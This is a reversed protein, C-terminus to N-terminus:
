HSILSQYLEFMKQTFREIGFLEEALNRGNKRLKASLSRDKILRRIADSLAKTDSPPILLGTEENRILTNLAWINTAIVPKQAVMAEVISLGFGERWTAPLTFLDMAALPEAINSINGTFKVLDSMGSNESLIKLSQLERGEGVILVKLNPFESLLAHVAEILIHHGKDKVLRAIIGIVFDSPSFGYSQRIKAPDVQALLEDLERIPVANHILAIKKEPVHFDNKLFDSVGESIAVVRDGWAPLVRRGLRLKYFGHCTTVVHIPYFTKVWHALVQTVRTHAHLLDIKNKKILQIVKPICSYLRPDLESKTRIPIKFLPIDEQRFPAENNGGSSAILIEAGCKKLPAALRLIYQTIGGTNLHTTLHLIKM